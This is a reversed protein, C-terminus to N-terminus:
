ISNDSIALLNKIEGIGLIKNTKELTKLPDTELGMIAYAVDMNEPIVISEQHIAQTIIIENHLIRTANTFLINEYIDYRRRGIDRALEVLKGTSNLNYINPDLYTIRGSMELQRFLDDEKIPDKLRIILVQLHMLTTPAAIAITDIPIDGIVTKVDHAHHSPISRMDLTISNVPGKMDEKPDSARRIILGIVSSLNGLGLSCLVRLIGTTNCSVVRVYRRGIASEYNCLTSYSVEAISAQEGGQFVAPKNYKLYLEKNRPGQKAPSADYILESESILYEVDGEVEVGHKRFEETKDRPTFVRIGLKEAIYVSYDFSYKGIGILDFDSNKLFAEAIRKGITGYGNIAIKIPM